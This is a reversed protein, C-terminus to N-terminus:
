NYTAIQLRGYQVAAAFPAGFASSLFGTPARFYSVRGQVIRAWLMRLTSVTDRRGSLASSSVVGSPSSLEAEWDPGLKCCCPPADRTEQIPRHLQVHELLKDWAYPTRFAQLGEAEMEPTEKMSFGVFSREFTSLTSVVWSKLGESWRLAETVEADTRLQAALANVM